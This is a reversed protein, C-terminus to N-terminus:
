ARLPIAPPSSPSVLTKLQSTTSGEVRELPARKIRHMFAARRDILHKEKEKRIESYDASPVWTVAIIPFIGEELRLDFTYGSGELLANVIELPIEPMSAFVNVKAFVQKQNENVHVNGIINLHKSYFMVSETMDSFTNINKRALVKQATKVEAITHKRICELLARPGCKGVAVNALAEILERSITVFDLLDILIRRVKCAELLQEMEVGELAELLELARELVKRRTGYEGREAFSDMIQRHGESLTTHFDFLKM